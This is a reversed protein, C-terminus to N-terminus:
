LGEVSQRVLDSIVSRQHELVGATSWLVRGHSRDTRRRRIALLDLCLMSSTAEARSETWVTSRRDRYAAHVLEHTLTAVLQFARLRANMAILGDDDLYIGRLHDDPWPVSIVTVGMDTALSLHRDVLRMTDITATHDREFELDTASAPPRQGLESAQVQAMAACAAIQRYRIASQAAIRPSADLACVVLTHEAAVTADSARETRSSVCRKSFSQDM